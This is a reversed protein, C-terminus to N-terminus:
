YLRLLLLVVAQKRKHRDRRRSPGSVTVTVVRVSTRPSAPSRTAFHSRVLKARRFTKQMKNSRETLYNVMGKRPIANVTRQQTTILCNSSFEGMHWTDWVAFRPDAMRAVKCAFQHMSNFTYLNHLSPLDAVACSKKRSRVKGDQFHPNSGSM